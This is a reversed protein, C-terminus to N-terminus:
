VLGGSFGSDEEDPAPKEEAQEAQPTPHSEDSPHPPAERHTEAPARPPPRHSRRPEEFVDIDQPAYGPAKSKEVEEHYAKIIARQFRSRCDSNIPHAVDVHLKGGGEVDPARDGPLRAGCDNCHKARLHNKGGCKPCHDTLKRSPMAVFLGKAGDIVKIDRIVFEHDVTVTCFAKLRETKDEVLRVKVESIDM